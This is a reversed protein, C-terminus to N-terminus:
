KGLPVTWSFQAGLTGYGLEFHGSENGVQIAAKIYKEHVTAHEYIGLATVVQYNVNRHTGLDLKIRPAAFALQNSQQDVIGFGAEAGFSFGNSQPMDIQAFFGVNGDWTNWHSQASLIGVGIEAKQASVSSCVLIAFLM